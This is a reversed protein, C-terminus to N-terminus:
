VNSDAQPTRVPTHKPCPPFGNKTYVREKHVGSSRTYVPESVNALGRPINKIETLPTTVSRSNYRANRANNVTPLSTMPRELQESQSTCQQRCKTNWDANKKWDCLKQQSFTEASQRWRDGDTKGGGVGYRGRELFLCFLSIFTFHRGTKEGLTPQTSEMESRADFTVLVPRVFESTEYKGRSM